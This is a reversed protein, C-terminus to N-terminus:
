MQLIYSPLGILRNTHLPVFEIIQKLQLIM